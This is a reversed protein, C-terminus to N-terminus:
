WSMTGYGIVTCQTCMTFMGDVHGGETQRLVTQSQCHDSTYTVNEVCTAKYSGDEASVANPVLPPLDVSLDKLLDDLQKTQVACLVISPLPSHLRRGRSFLITGSDGCADVAQSVIM